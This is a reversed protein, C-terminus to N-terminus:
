AQLRGIESPQLVGADTIFATILASPTVDFAPNWVEASDPASRNGQFSRVEQDKREEIPIWSGDAITFDFTTRPAAVYFPVQHARAALALGYTGIKNAVDGNSAVRDAGVIVCHIDGQFLRSAAMGDTILTCPIGSQGLEWATLRAGQLLPRTESAVVRIRRGTAHARYVPALATGIGGTALVGANCHTFVVSEPNLLGLGHEGIRACMAEDEKWITDAETVLSAQLDGGERVVEQARRWMRDLAWGLNVATPRTARLTECADRVRELVQAPAEGSGRKGALSVGMAGAIGLLPAGRVRLSRISEAVQAVTGLDLYREEAPLLTQDLLRVRRDDTWDIPRPMPM